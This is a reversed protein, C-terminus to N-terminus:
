HCQGPLYLRWRPLLFLMFLNFMILENNKWTIEIYGTSVALLGWGATWRCAERHPYKIAIAVIVLPTSVGTEVGNRRM